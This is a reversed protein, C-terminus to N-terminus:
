KAGEDIALKLSDFKNGLIKTTVQFMLQNEALKQMEEDLDVPRKENSFELSESLTVPDLGLHHENTQALKGRQLMANKMVASFSFDQANYGPTEINAVNSQILGQREMRADLAMRSSQVVGGFLKSTFPM